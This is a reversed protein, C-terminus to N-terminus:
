FNLVKNIYWLGGAQNRRFKAHTRFFYIIGAAVFEDNPMMVVMMMINAWFVFLNFVRFALFVTLLAYCAPELLVQYDTV